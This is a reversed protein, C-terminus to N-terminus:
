SFRKRWYLTNKFGYETSPQYLLYGSRILNNASPLNSSTDTVTGNYGERKAKAERARIFRQQLGQGRYLPIVGCRGLYAFDSYRHSPTLWAFGVPDNGDYALWFWGESFSPVEADDGFTEDHLRRIITSNEANKANIERIQIM